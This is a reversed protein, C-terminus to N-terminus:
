ADHRAWRVAPAYLGGRLDGQTPAKRKLHPRGETERARKLRRPGPLVAAACFAGNAGLIAIQKRRTRELAAIPLTAEAPEQKRVIIEDKKLPKLPAALSIRVGSGMM